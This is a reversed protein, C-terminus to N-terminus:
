EFTMQTACSKLEVTDFTEQWLPDFLLGSCRANIFNGGVGITQVRTHKNKHQTMM